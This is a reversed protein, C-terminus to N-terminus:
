KKLNFTTYNNLVNVVGPHVNREDISNVKFWRWAFHEWNLRPQYIKKIAPSIELFFTYYKFRSCPKHYVYPRTNLKGYPLHGLEEKAETLATVLPSIEIGHKNVKRAGGAIGWFGQDLTGEARALLLIESYDNLTVLLGAASKGWTREKSFGYDYADKDLNIYKVFEDYNLYKSNM